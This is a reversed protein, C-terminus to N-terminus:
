TQYQRKNYLKQLETKSWKNQYGGTQLDYAVEIIEWNNKTINRFIKVLFLSSNILKNFIPILNIIVINDIIKFGCCIKVSM